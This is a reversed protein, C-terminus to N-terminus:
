LKQATVHKKRCTTCYPFPVIIDLNNMKTTLYVKDGETFEKECEVCKEYEHDKNGTYTFYGGIHDVDPDLHKQLRQPLPTQMREWEDKMGKIFQDEQTTNGHKQRTKTNSPDPKVRTLQLKYESGTDNLDNLLHNAAKLKLTKILNMTSKSNRTEERNEM